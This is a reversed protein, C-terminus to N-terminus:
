YRWKKAIHNYNRWILLVKRHSNKYTKSKNKLNKNM